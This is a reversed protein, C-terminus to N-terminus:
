LSNFAVPEIPHSPTHMSILCLWCPGVSDDAAILLTHTCGATRWWCAALTRGAQTSGALTGGNRTGGTLTEDTLTGRALLQNILTQDVVKRCALWQPVHRTSPITSGQTESIISPMMLVRDAM